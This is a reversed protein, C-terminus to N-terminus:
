QVIIQVYLVKNDNGQFAIGKDNRMTWSSFYTGPLEPATFNVSVEAEQSPAIAASLAAAQGGMREGYSFILAYGDGWACSGTNKIKWTKTFDEGPSVVSNDPYNVDVTAVDWSYKDCLDVPTGEANTVQAVPPETATDTAVPAPTETPPAPPTPSFAAGTLTFQAVVTRAASTRVAVVDPTPETPAPTGGCASLLLACVLLLAPYM